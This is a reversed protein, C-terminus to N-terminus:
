WKLFYIVQASTWMRNSGFGLFLLSYIFYYYYYYKLTWPRLKFVTELSFFFFFFCFVSFGCFERCVPSIYSHFVFLKSLDCLGKRSCPLLARGHPEPLPTSSGWALSPARPADEKWSGRACWVRGWCKWVDTGPHGLCTNTCLPWWCSILGFLKLWNQYGLAHSHM